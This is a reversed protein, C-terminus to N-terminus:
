LSKHCASFNVGKQKCVHRANHLYIIWDEFVEQIAVVTANAMHATANDQRFYGHHREEATVQNFFPNLIDNVYRDSNV